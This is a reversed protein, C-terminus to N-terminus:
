INYYGTLNNFPLTPIECNVRGKVTYILFSVAEEKELRKKEKKKEKRVRIEEEEQSKKMWLSFSEDDTYVRQIM